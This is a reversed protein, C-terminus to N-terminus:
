YGLAKGDRRRDAGGHINGTLYDITIGQVGGFFLDVDKAGHVAVDYGMLELATRTAEPIGKEVDLLKETDSPEDSSKAYCFFRPAEIAEQINMGFDLMNVVVQIVASPIRMSGPSGLTAVPDGDKMIITPMIHSVPQKGPEVYSASSSSLSFGSLQNNMHIGYGEIVVGNGFFYNITQTISAINGDKDIVSFSTTSYHEEADAVDYDVPATPMYNWPNGYVGTSSSSAPSFATGVNYYQDFREAAFDKSLLGALPVNVYEADAVYKRKDGYALQMATALVNIYEPSNHGLDVLNGYHELMNLTEILIIGGSSPTNVSVIDYGKYSGQTPTAVKTYGNAKDLDAQTILGGQAEFTDIIAQAVVGKYFGDRGQDRILKLAKALNEQVMLDGAQLPTIGDSTYVPITEDRTGYRMLKYFQDSIANALEPTVKVGNEAYDIAGKMVEARSKLGHNELITLLGDVQTPVGSAKPGDDLDADGNTFASSVGAAPVFERFNYSLYKGTSAEYGLMIGGGGLGSANPECVGLAFSIAVIADFANGGAKLIDLGAKAAYPNAAAVMGNTGIADRVSLDTFDIEEEPTNKKCGPLILAILVIIIAIFWRRYNKM